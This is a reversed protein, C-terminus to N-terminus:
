HVAAWARLKITVDPFVQECLEATTFANDPEAAFAAEIAQEIFASDLPKENSGSGDRKVYARQRCAASCYKADRRKPEFDSGCTICTATKKRTYSRM